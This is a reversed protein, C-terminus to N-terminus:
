AEDDSSALTLDIPMVYTDGATTAVEAVTKCNYNTDEKDESDEEDSDMGYFIRNQKDFMNTAVNEKGDSWDVKAANVWDATESFSWVIHVLPKGHLDYRKTGSNVIFAPQSSKRGSKVWILNAADNTAQEEKSLGKKVSRSIKREKKSVYEVDRYCVEFDQM